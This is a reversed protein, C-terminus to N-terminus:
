TYIDKIRNFYLIPITQVELSIRLYIHKNEGLALSCFLWGLKLFNHISFFINALNLTQSTEKLFNLKSIITAFCHKLYLYCWYVFNLCMKCICLYIYMSM